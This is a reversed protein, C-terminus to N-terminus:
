ETRLRTEANVTVRHMLYRVFKDTNAAKIDAEPGIDKGHAWFQDLVKQRLNRKRKATEPPPAFLHNLLTIKKHGDHAPTLYPVLHVSWFTAVSPHMKNKGADLFSEHIACASLELSSALRYSEVVGRGAFCNNSYVFSGRAIAGRLPLGFAFMHRFLVGAALNFAMARFLQPFLDPGEDDMLMLVTDSFILWRIAEVERMFEAHPNESQPAASVRTMNEQITTTVYKGINSIISIVESTALEAENNELFSQYGLIDFFGIYGFGSLPQDM